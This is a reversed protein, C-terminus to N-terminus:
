VNTQAILDLSAVLNSVPRGLKSQVAMTLAERLEKHANGAAVASHFWEYRELRAQVGADYECVTFSVEDKQFAYYIDRLADLGDLDMHRLHRLSLIVPGARRRLAAIRDSHTANNTFTWNSLPRYVVFLDSNNKINGLLSTGDGQLQVFNHAADMHGLTADVLAYDGPAIMRMNGSERLTGLLIACIIAYTPDVFICVLFVTMCQLFSSKDMKWYHTYVPIKIM